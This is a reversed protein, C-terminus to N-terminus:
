NLPYKSLSDRDSLQSLFLSLFLVEEGHEKLLDYGELGTTLLFAGANPYNIFTPISRHDMEQILELFAALHDTDKKLVQFYNQPQPYQNVFRQFSAGRIGNRGIAKRDEALARALTQEYIKTPEAISLANSLLLAYNARKEDNGVKKPIHEYVEMFLEPDRFLVSFDAESQNKM